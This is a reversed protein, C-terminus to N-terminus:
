KKSPVKFGIAQRPKEERVLFKKLLKFIAQVEEDKKLLAREIKEIKLWLDKNDLLLQKMKTYVRIIQINVQIATESRLVSSLQAVGQETFAFPLKRIGGWSSTVFQSKLNNWEISTLHFMFDDPFRSINRKVSQNLVKVEVGYMEALDKDLMIKQGRIIYIKEIIENDNFTKILQNDPM